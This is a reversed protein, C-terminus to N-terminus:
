QEEPTFIGCCYDAWSFADYEPSCHPTCLGTGDKHHSETWHDCKACCKEPLAAFDPKDKRLEKENSFYFIGHKM